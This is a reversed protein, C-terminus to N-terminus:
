NEKTNPASFVFVVKVKSVKVLHIRGSSVKTTDLGETITDALKQKEQVNDALSDATREAREWLTEIQKLHDFNNENIKNKWKHGDDSKSKVLQQEIKDDTSSYKRRSEERILQRANTEAQGLMAAQQEQMTTRIINRM